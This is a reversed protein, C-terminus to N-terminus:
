IEFEASLNKVFDASLIGARIAKQLLEILEDESLELPRAAKQGADVSSLRLKLLWGEGVQIEEIRSQTTGQQIAISRLGKGEEQKGM